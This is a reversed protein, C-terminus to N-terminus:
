LLVKLKVYKELFEDIRSKALEKSDFYYHDVYIINNSASLRDKYTNYMQYYAEDLFSLKSNHFEIVFKNDYKDSKYLVIRGLPLPGYYKKENSNYRRYVDRCYDDESWDTVLLDGYITDNIM